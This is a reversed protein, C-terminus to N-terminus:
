KGGKMEGQYIDGNEFHSEGYAHPASAELSGMYLLGLSNRNATDAGRPCYVAGRFIVTLRPM